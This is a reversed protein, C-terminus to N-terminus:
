PSGPPLVNSPFSVSIPCSTVARCRLSLKLVMSYNIGHMPCFTPLRVILGNADAFDVVFNESHVQSLGSNSTMCRQMAFKIRNKWLPASKPRLLAFQDGLGLTKPGHPMYVENDQVRANTPSVPHM